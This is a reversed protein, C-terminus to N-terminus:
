GRVRRRRVSLRAGHAAPPGGDASGVRREEEPLLGRMPKWYRLGALLISFAIGAFLYSIWPLPADAGASLLQGGIFKGAGEGVGTIFNAVGFFAGIMSAAGLRSVVIDSTPMILMEGFIFVAGSLMLGQFNDAWALSGLALGILLVGVALTTLPHIRATIRRTIQTQLAIVIGSNITWILSVRGPDALVAEARLPLALTLQFYLAWILVAALSYAMYARNRFIALYTEIPTSDCPADGCGRPLLLWSVLGWVGYLVASVYFVAATPGGLVFYTLLGAAAIGANAAVGRMSFATTETDGNSALAAIAAKTSPANLGVGIGSLLGVALFAATSDFLAYGAIAAGNVWAGIAIVIRRGIRDALWGGSLSALQFTIPSVALIIGIEGISVGKAEILYIPILPIVMYTGLHSLLVGLLLVNMTSKGPQLRRSAM